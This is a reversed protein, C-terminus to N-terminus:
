LHTRGSPLVARRVSPHTGGDPCPAAVLQEGPLVLPTIVVARRSLQCGKLHLLATLADGPCGAGHKQAGARPWVTDTAGQLDRCGGTVGGAGLSGRAARGLAWAPNGQNVVVSKVQMGEKGRVRREELTDRMIELVMAALQIMGNISQM